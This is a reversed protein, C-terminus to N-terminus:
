VRQQVSDGSDGSRDGALADIEDLFIVQPSKLASARSAPARVAPAASRAASFLERVLQEAEGVFSSFVSAVQLSANHRSAARFYM